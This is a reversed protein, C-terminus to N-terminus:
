SMGDCMKTDFYRCRTTPHSLVLQISRFIDLGGSYRAYHRGSLGIIGSRSQAVLTGFLLSSCTSLLVSLIHVSTRMRAAPPQLYQYIWLHYIDCIEHYVPICSPVSATFTAESAVSAKALAPFRCDYLLAIHRYWKSDVM